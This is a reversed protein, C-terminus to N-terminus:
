KQEDNDDDAAGVTSAPKMGHRQHPVHVGIARFENFPWSVMRALPTPPRARFRGAAIAHRAFRETQTNVAHQLVPSPRAGDRIDKILKLVPRIGVRAHGRLQLHLTREIVQYEESGEPPVVRGASRV